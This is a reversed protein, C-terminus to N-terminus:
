LKAKSDTNPNGIKERLTLTTKSVSSSFKSRSPEKEMQGRQKRREGKGRERKWERGWLRTKQPSTGAQGLWGGPSRRRQRMSIGKLPHIIAACAFTTAAWSEVAGSGQFLLTEVWRSKKCIRKVCICVGAVCVSVCECVLVCVWVELVFPMQKCKMEKLDRHTKWM